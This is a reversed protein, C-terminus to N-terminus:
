AHGGHALFFRRSSLPPRSPLTRSTISVADSSAHVIAKQWPSTLQRSDALQDSEGCAFNGCARLPRMDGRSARACSPSFDDRSTSACRTSRESEAREPGKERTTHRTTRRRLGPNVSLRLAVSCTTRRLKIADARISRIQRNTEEATPSSITRNRLGNGCASSSSMKQASRSSAQITISAM